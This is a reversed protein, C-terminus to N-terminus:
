HIGTVKILWLTRVRQEINHKPNKKNGFTGYIRLLHLFGNIDVYNEWQAEWRKFPKYGSGKADKDHTEWYANGAAIIADFTLRSSDSSKLEKMWPTDLETQANTIAFSLLATFLFYKKM